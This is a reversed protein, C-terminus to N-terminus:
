GAKAKLRSQIRLQAGRPRCMQFTGGKCPESERRVVRCPIGPENRITGRFEARVVTRYVPLGTVKDFFSVVFRGVVPVRYM